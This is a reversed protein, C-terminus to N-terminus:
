PNALIGIGFSENDINYARLNDGYGKTYTPGWYLHDTLRWLIKSEVYGNYTSFNYRGQVKFLTDWINLGLELQGNGYYYQMNFDREEHDAPYIEDSVINWIKLALKVASTSYQSRVYLRDWSRSEPEGRGNSEHEYGLDLFSYKGGFRIFIEPNYNTERFPRSNDSDYIQWFSKQTFAAALFSTGVKLVTAKLSIQFKMEEDDKAIGYPEQLSKYYPYLYNEKHLSVNFDSGGSFSEDQSHAVEFPILGTFLILFTFFMRLNYCLVENIQVFLDLCVLM